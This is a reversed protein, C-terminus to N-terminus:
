KGNDIAEVPALADLKEEMRDAIKNLIRARDAPATRGWGDKAAHAADLAQEIDEASSRAITCVISADIPSINEFKEGKVPPVWKGGIFNDYHRRMPIHNEVWALTREVMETAGQPDGCSRPLQTDDVDLRSFCRGQLPM